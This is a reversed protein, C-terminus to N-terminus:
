AGTLALPIEVTNGTTLNVAFTVELTEGQPLFRFGTVDEIQDHVTLAATITNALAGYGGSNTSGILDNLGDTGYTDSYIAHAFRATYITKEIWVKIQEVGDVVAPSDGHRRFQGTGFDFAWGRGIVTPEDEVATPAPVGFTNDLAETAALRLNEEPTIVPDESPLLSFTLDDPIPM